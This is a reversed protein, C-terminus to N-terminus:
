KSTQWSRKTARGGAKPFFANIKELVHLLEQQSFYGKENVIHERVAKFTEEGGILAFYVTVLMALDNERQAANLDSIFDFDDMLQEDIEVEYGEWLEIKKNEEAM